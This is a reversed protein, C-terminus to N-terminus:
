NLWIKNEKYRRYEERNIEIYIVADYNRKIAEEEPLVLISEVNRPEFYTYNNKDIFVRSRQQQIHKNTRTELQGTISIQPHHGHRSHTVSSACIVVRQGHLLLLFENVTKIFYDPDKDEKRIAEGRKPM